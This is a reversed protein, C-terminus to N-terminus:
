HNLSKESRKPVVGLGTCLGATITNSSTVYPYTGFDIDLMGQAGRGFDNEPMLAQNVFYEGDVHQLSRLCELSAFWKTEEAELNFDIAPYMSALNLHKRQADPIQGGDPAFADGVRLGNRGTKDMYTPGLVAFHGLRLQAGQLSRPRMWYDIRLCSLTHRIPKVFLRDLFSLGTSQLEAIEKEPYHPDIVVGNGILNQM